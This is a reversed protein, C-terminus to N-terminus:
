HDSGDSPLFHRARIAAAEELVVQGTALVTETIVAALKDPRYRRQIGPELYLETLRQLGDVEAVVSEDESAVRCRLNEVDNFAAGVRQAVAANRDLIAQVADSGAVYRESGAVSVEDAM